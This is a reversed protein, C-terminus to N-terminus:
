DFAKLINEFTFEEPEGHITLGDTDFTITLPLLDGGRDLAKILEHAECLVEHLRGLKSGIHRGMEEPMVERKLAAMAEAAKTFADYELAEYPEDKLRQRSAQVEKLLRKLKEVRWKWDVVRDFIPSLNDQASERWFNIKQQLGEIEARARAEVESAYEM